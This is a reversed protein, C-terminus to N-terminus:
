RAVTSAEGAFDGTRSRSGEYVFKSAEGRSGRSPMDFLLSQPAGIPRTRKRLNPLRGAGRKHPSIKPGM